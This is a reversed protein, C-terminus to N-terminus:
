PSSTRFTNSIVYPCPYQFQKRANKCCHKQTPQNVETRVAGFGLQQIVRRVAAVKHSSGHVLFSVHSGPM